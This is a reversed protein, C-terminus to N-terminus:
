SYPHTIRFAQARHVIEAVLCPAADVPVRGAASGASLRELRSEAQVTEPVHLNAAIQRVVLRPHNRYGDISIQFGGGRELRVM